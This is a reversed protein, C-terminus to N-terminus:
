RSLPDLALDDAVVGEVPQPGVEAPGLREVFQHGPPYADDGAVDAGVAEAQGLGVPGRQGLAVDDDV